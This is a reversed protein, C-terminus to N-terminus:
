EDQVPIHKLKEKLVTSQTFDVVRKPPVLMTAKHHPNYVKRVEKNVTRFTGLGPISFGEGSSLQETFVSLVEKLLSDTENKSLGTKKALNNTLDTYTM